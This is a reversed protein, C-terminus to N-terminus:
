AARRRRELVGWANAYVAFAGRYEVPLCRSLVMFTKGGAESAPIVWTLNAGDKGAGVAICVWVDIGTTKKGHRHLNWTWAKFGTYTYVKGNGPRIRRTPRTVSAVRVAVRLGDAEIDHPRNFDTLRLVHHGRRKLKAAVRATHHDHLEHRTM